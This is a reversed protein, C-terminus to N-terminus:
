LKEANETNEKKTELHTTYNNIEITLRLVQGVGYHGMKVRMSGVWKAVELKLKIGEPNLFTVSSMFALFRMSLAPITLELSFSARM